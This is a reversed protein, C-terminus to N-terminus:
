VIEGGDRVSVHRQSDLRDELVDDRSIGAFRVFGHTHPSGDRIVKTTPAASRRGTRRCPPVARRLVGAMQRYASLALRCRCTDRARSPFVGAAQWQFSKMTTPAACSRRRSAVPVFIPKRAALAACRGDGSGPAFTAGIPLAARGPWRRVKLPRSTPRPRDSTSTPHPSAHRLTSRCNGQLFGKVQASLQM